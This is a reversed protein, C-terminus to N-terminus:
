LPLNTLNRIIGTGKARRFKDDNYGTARFRIDEKTIRNAELIDLFALYQSKRRM